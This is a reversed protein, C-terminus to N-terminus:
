EAGWAPEVAGVPVVVVGGAEVVPVVAVVVGLELPDVLPLEDPLAGDLPLEDPM